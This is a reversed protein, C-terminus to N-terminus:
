FLNLLTPLINLQSTTETITTKKIDNSWIFFPTKNILNSSTDKFKSIISQNQMTYLYHDTFVVIVTDDILNKEELKKLLLEIM